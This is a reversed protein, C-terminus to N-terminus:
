QEYESGTTGRSASSSRRLLVARRSRACFRRAPLDARLFIFDRPKASVASGDFTDGGVFEIHACKFLIPEDANGMPPAATLVRSIMWGYKRGGTAQGCVAGGECCAPYFQLRFGVLLIDLRLKVHITITRTPASEVM